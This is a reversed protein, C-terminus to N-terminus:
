EKNITNIGRWYIPFAANVRQKYRNNGAFLLEVLVGDVLTVYALAAENINVNILEGQKQHHNMLKILLQQLRDIFSNVIYLIQDLLAPPPFFSVRLLFKTTDANNFGEEIWDFFGELKAKLPKEESMQFYYLIRRRELNFVHKVVSLFLDDKGKYHSYITPKKIGVEEAIKSLSAGEYGYHAFHSLAVDRIKVSSM